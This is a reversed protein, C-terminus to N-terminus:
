RPADIIELLTAESLRTWHSPFHWIRRCVYGADFILCSTADAGPVDHALAERVRWRTGDEAYVVRQALTELKPQGM